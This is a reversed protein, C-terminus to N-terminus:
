STRTLDHTVWFDILKARYSSWNTSENLVETIELKAEISIPRPAAIVKDLEAVFGEDTPPCDVYYDAYSEASKGTIRPYNMLRFSAAQFGSSPEDIAYKGLWRIDSAIVTDGVKRGQPPPPPGSAADALLGAERLTAIVRITEEARLGEPRGSVATALLGARNLASILEIAETGTDDAM